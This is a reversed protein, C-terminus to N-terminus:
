SKLGKAKRRYFSMIKEQSQGRRYRWWVQTYIWQLKWAGNLRYKRASTVIDSTLVKFSGIQKLRGIIEQDEMVLLAEQYGGIKEFLSKRTFLGQDGFRFAQWNFRTCWASFALLPHNWDFRLRFCASDTKCALLEQKFNLPPQSDAHLFFLNESHAYQAGLNMQSARHARPSVLWHQGAQQTVKETADTSGADVIIWEITPDQGHKKLLAALCKEENLTPVIVSLQPQNM